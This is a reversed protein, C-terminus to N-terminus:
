RSVAPSASRHLPLFSQIRFYSFNRFICALYNNRYNIRSPTNGSHNPPFALSPGLDSWFLSAPDTDDSWPQATHFGRLKHKRKLNWAHHATHFGRLKHKRKFNWADHLWTKCRLHKPAFIHEEDVSSPQFYAKESETCCAFSCSAQVRLPSHREWTFFSHLCDTAGTKDSCMRILTKKKREKLFLSVFLINPAFCVHRRYVESV